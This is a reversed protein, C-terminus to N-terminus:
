LISSGFMIGVVNLRDVGSILFPLVAMAAGAVSTHFSFEIAFAYERIEHDCSLRLTDVFLQHPLFNSYRVYGDNRSPNLNFLVALSM